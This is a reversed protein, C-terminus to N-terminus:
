AHFEGKGVALIKLTVRMSHKIKMEAATCLPKKGCLLKAEEGCLIV